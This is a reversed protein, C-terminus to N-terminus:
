QTDRYMEAVFAEGAHVRNGMIMGIQSQYDFNALCYATALYGSLFVFSKFREKNSIAFLNYKINFLPM